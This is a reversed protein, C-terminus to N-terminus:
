NGENPWSPSSEGKTVYLDIRNQDETKLETFKLGMGQDKASYRVEGSAEITAGGDDLPFRLTTISGSALPDKTSLFMGGVSINRSYALFSESGHIVQVVFPKRPYRRKQRLRSLVLALITQRNDPSIVTFEMGHGRGPMHCRVQARAEILSHHKSPRFKVSMETGPTLADAIQLLFGNGGLEAVRCRRNKGGVNCAIPLDVDIRPFRRLNNLVM